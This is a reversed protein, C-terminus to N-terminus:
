DAGSRKLVQQVTELLEKLRFPKALCAEINHTGPNFDEPTVNGYGTCLIVPMPRPLGVIAAALDSGSMHPMTQDTIVLDVDDTSRLYDLAAGPDNFVSTRYGAHELLESMFNAVSVEDDVVVVHGGEAATGNASGANVDVETAVEAADAADAPPFYLKFCSGQGPTSEVLVHGGHQHMVSHVMALGFGSGRGAVRTTVLRDFLQERLDEAIGRGDDAISLELWSGDFSAHCAACRASGPLTVARVGVDIRGDGEIAERANIFLNVVIQQLQVPDASIRPLEHAIHSRIAITTPILSRMMRLMGELEDAVALPRRDGEETRSFNLLQAILDRARQGAGIVESLYDNCREGADTGELTLQALEAYGIMSALINNFDHAIGGSLQGIAELRRTQQLQGELRLREQERERDVTVDRLIAVLSIGDEASLLRVSLELTRESGDRAQRTLERRQVGGRDQLSRIFRRRSGDSDFLWHDSDTNDFGAVLTDYHENREAIRGDDGRSIFLADPSSQFLTAFKRESRALASAIRRGDSVDRAVGYTGIFRSPDDAAYRGMASVEIWRRIGDEGPHLQMEFCTTARHATRREDFRFRGRRIEEPGFLVMWHQGELSERERGFVKECSASIFTFRGEADLLYIVDPSQDVLFRHLRDSEHVRALVERADAEGRQHSLASAISHLLDEPAYPKRLYDFAGLRLLRRMMDESREGSVVIVRPPITMAQAAELVDYGDVEPMNLDLLLLEIDPRGPLLALAAAGDPATEVRHGADALVDALSHVHRPDDDVILIRGPTM